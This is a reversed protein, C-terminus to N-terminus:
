LAEILVPSSISVPTHLGVSRESPYSHNHAQRTLQSINFPYETINRPSISATELVETYFEAVYQVIMM